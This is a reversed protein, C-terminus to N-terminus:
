YGTTLSRGGLNPGTEIYDEQYEEEEIEEQTRGEVMKDLILGLYSTADVCDDHKSRPFSLLENEYMEYWDASKDFKVGAARMRAQIPRARTIKDTKHPRLPIVNIYTGTEMMMKNLFPGISKSIQTEEVGFGMPEYMKQLALMTEVITLGDMRDRIVNRVQIVGDKDMGAVVFVTWDAKDHTSIAFDSTIYYTLEKRRDEENISLFDNKKFFRISDDIPNCLMECSYVEPIGQERLEARLQKLSEESHMEPWLINAFTEDHARYKVSRWMGKKRRSSVKLPQVITDKARENPMLSELIDDSNMPTGVFRVVGTKSRCPILSGYFWRRLKDRRDKNMVLEENLIDDILILDPRSGDWLLGRLKQEAGKAIIRFRSGDAFKVIFDTNTDKEFDVEGKENLGLGFLEQIEKSDALIQKIQGLFLSSQSETDSVIVGFKKDRFLMAALTYVITVTTSKSHRRPACVAVFQDDSTCMDWLERHFDKFAVANDFFGTLCSGAFGEIIQATLKIKKFL